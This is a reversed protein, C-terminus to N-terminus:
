RSCQIGKEEKLVSHKHVIFRPPKLCENFLGLPPEPSSLLRYTQEVVNNKTKTHLTSNITHKRENVVIDTNNIDM